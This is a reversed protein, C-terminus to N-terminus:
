QAIKIYFACHLSMGARTFTFSQVAISLSSSLLYIAHIISVDIFNCGREFVNVYGTTFIYVLGKMNAKRTWKDSITHWCQDRKSSVQPASVDLMMGANESHNQSGQLIFNLHLHCMQGMKGQPKQM